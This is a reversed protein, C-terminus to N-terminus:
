RNSLFHGMRYDTEKCKYLKGADSFKNKQHKTVYLNRLNKFISYM